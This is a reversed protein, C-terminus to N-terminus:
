QKPVTVTTTTKSQWIPAPSPAPCSPMSSTVIPPDAKAAVPKDASSEELKVVYKAPQLCYVDARNPSIKCYYPVTPGGLTDDKRFSSICFVDYGPYCKDLRMFGKAPHQHGFVFRKIKGGMLANFTAFEGFGIESTKSGRNLLKNKADVMRCWEFDTAAGQSQMLYPIGKNMMEQIDSRPIGGHSLLTGSEDLFAASPCEQMLRIWARGVYSYEEVYAGKVKHAEMRANLWDCFDAPKVSASFKKSMDWKLAIDHDGKVIGLKINNYKAFQEPLAKQMVAMIFVAEYMCTEGNRDLVDGLLYVTPANNGYVKATDIITDLVAVMSEFDGHTDGLLYVAENPAKTGFCGPGHAFCGGRCAPRLSINHHSLITDDKLLKDAIKFENDKLWKVLGNYNAAYTSTEISGVITHSKVMTIRRPDVIPPAVVPAKKEEGFLWEFWSAM